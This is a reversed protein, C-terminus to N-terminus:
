KQLLYEKNYHIFLTIVTFSATSFMLNEASKACTRALKQGAKQKAQIFEQHKYSKPGLIPNKWGM